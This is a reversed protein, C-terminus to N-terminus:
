QVVYHRYNDDYNTTIAAATVPSFDQLGTSLSAPPQM